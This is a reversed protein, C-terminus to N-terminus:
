GGGSLSVLVPTLAALLAAEALGLRGTFRVPEDLEFGVDDRNKM